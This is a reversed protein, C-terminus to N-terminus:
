LLMISNMKFLFLFLITLFHILSGEVLLQEHLHFPVSLAHLHEDQGLLTHTKHESYYSRLGPSVSWTFM